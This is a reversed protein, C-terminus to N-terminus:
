PANCRNLDVRGPFGAFSPAVTYQWISWPRHFISASSGDTTQPGHDITQQWPEPILPESKGRWDAVWLPRSGAWKGLKICKSKHWSTYIGVPIGALQELDQVFTRCAADTLGSDELDAWAAAAPGHVISSPGDPITGKVQKYCV